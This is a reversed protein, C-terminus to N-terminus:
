FGLLVHHLRAFGDATFKQPELNAASVSLGQHVGSSPPVSGHFSASQILNGRHGVFVDGAGANHWVPWHKLFRKKEGPKRTNEVHQERPRRRGMKGM